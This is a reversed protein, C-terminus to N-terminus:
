SEARQRLAKAAFGFAAMDYLAHTIMPALLNDTMIYLAGLWLGMIAAILAYIASHWHLIGFVISAAILAIPENLARELGTQIVGRFLLEEFVGAFLSLIIIRLPTLRFQLQSFFDIQADRFRVLVPISTGMFWALMATLPVTAAVGIVIDAPSGAILNWLPINFFFAVAFAIVGLFATGALAFALASQDDIKESAM